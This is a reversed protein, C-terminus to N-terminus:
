RKRSRRHWSHENLGRFARFYELGAILLGLLIATLYAITDFSVMSAPPLSLMKLLGAM